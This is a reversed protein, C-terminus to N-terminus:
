VHDELPINYPSTQSSMQSNAVPAVPAGPQQVATMQAPTPQQVATMQAPAPVGPQASMQAPAPPQVATMQAPAPQNQAQELPCIKLSALFDDIFSAMDDDVARLNGEIANAAVIAPIAVVLGAITTLLAGSIGPAIAQIDPRGGNQVIGIFTAMVGWVTGFLGLMPSISTMSALGGMGEDLHSQQIGYERSMSTRVRELEGETLRRPLTGNQAMAFRQFGDMQLIETVSSIATACIQVLPGKLKNRELESAIRLPWKSFQQYRKKFNKCDKILGHSIFGKNIVLSVLYANIAILLLVIFKGMGDSNTFALIPTSFIDWM